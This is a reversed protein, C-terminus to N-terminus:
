VFWSVVLAVAICLGVQLVTSRLRDIAAALNATDLNPAPDAPAQLPPGQEPM